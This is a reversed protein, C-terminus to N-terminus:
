ISSNVIYIYICYFYIYVIVRRNLLNKGRIDNIYWKILLMINKTELSTINETIVGIHIPINEIDDSITSVSCVTSENNYDSLDYGNSFLPSPISYHYKTKYDYCNAGISDTKNCEISGIYFGKTIYYSNSLQANNIESTNLNSSYTQQINELLLYGYLYKKRSIAEIFLKISDYLTVFDEELLYKPLGGRELIHLLIRNENANINTNVSTFSSITIINEALYKSIKNSLIVNRYLFYYTYVKIGPCGRQYPEFDHVILLIIGNEKRVNNCILMFGGMSSTFDSSAYTEVDINYLRNNLYKVSSEKLNVSIRYAINNLLIYQDKDYIIRIKDTEKSIYDLAVYLSNEPVRANILTNNLCIEGEFPQYILLVKDNKVIIDNM